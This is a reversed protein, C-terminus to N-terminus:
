VCHRSGTVSELLSRNKITPNQVFNSLRLSPNLLFGLLESLLRVASVEVQLPEGAAALLLKPL